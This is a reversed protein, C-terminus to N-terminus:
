KKAEKKKWYRVLGAVSMYAPNASDYQRLIQESLNYKSLEEMAWKSFKPTMQEVTEGYELHRKIWNAQLHLNEELKQLHKESNSVVDFHTLYMKKPALKRLLNISKTWKELSIDPPPCPAVVPGGEEVCVGGVDGTFIDEGLQWAIHHNAHGPTHWAKFTHDGIKFEAEDEAIIVNEEAIPNIAGWLEDFMDQYIMRASNVLKKPSILHPAGFPHVYIKAGNQAFDWAAGAHDFHIHTLLIHKVDEKKYGLNQLASELHNITSHPGSEILIPGEKSEVLFSAITNKNGRFHLDLTKIM